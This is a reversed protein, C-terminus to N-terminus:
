RMSPFEGTSEAGSLSKRAARHAADAAAKLLAQQATLEGIEGDLKTVLGCLKETATTHRALEERIVPGHGGRLMEVFIALILGAGALAAAAVALRSTVLVGGGALAGIAFSAGSALV